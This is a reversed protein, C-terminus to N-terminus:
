GPKVSGLAKFSRLRIVGRDREVKPGDPYNKLKVPCELIMKVKEPVEWEVNHDKFSTVVMASNADDFGGCMSLATRM